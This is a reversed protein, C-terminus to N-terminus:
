FQLDYRTSPKVVPRERLHILDAIVRYSGNFEFNKYISKQGLYNVGCLLNQDEAIGSKNTWMCNSFYTKDPSETDIFYQLKLKKMLFAKYNYIWKLKKEASADIREIKNLYQNLSLLAFSHDKTPM